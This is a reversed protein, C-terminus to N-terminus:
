VHARGIQHAQWSIFRWGLVTIAVGIGINQTIWQTNMRAKLLTILLAGLLGFIAGSAGVTSTAPGAFLM